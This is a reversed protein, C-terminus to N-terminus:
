TWKAARARARVANARARYAPVGDDYAREEMGSSMNTKAQNWAAILRDHLDGKRRKLAAGATDNKGVVGTAFGAGEVASEFSRFSTRLFKNFERFHFLEHKWTLDRAWYRERPSRNPSGGAPRLDSEIKKWTGAKVVGASAGGVHTRGGSAVGVPVRLRLRKLAFWWRPGVRYASYRAVPEHANWDVGGFPDVGPYAIRKAKFRGAVSGASAAGAGAGGDKPEAAPKAGAGGGDKPVAAPKAGAADLPEAADEDTAGM